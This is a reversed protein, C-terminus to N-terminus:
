MSHRWLYKKNKPTIIDTAVEGEWCFVLSFILVRESMIVVEAETPGPHPFRHSATFPIFRSLCFYQVRFPEEVPSARGLELVAKAWVVGM